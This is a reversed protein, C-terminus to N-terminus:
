AYLCKLSTALAPFFLTKNQFTIQHGIINLTGYHTTKQEQTHEKKSPLILLSYMAFTGGVFFHEQLHTLFYYKIQEHLSYNRSIVVGGRDPLNEDTFDQHCPRLASICKSTMNMKIISVFLEGEGDPLIGSLAADIIRQNA